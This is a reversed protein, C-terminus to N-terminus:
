RLTLSLEGSILWDFASKVETVANKIELMEKLNKRLTEMEKSLNDM